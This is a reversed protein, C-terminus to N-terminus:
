KITDSVNDAKITDIPLISVSETKITIKKKPKLKPVEVMKLKNIKELSDIKQSLGKIIDEKNIKDHFYSNNEYIVWDIDDYLNKIWSSMFIIVLALIAALRRMRNLLIRETRTM